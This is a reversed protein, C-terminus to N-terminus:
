RLTKNVLVDAGHPSGATQQSETDEVRLVASRVNYTSLLSKSISYLDILLSLLTHRFSFSHLLPSGLVQTVHLLMDM